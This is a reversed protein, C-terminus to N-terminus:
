CLLRPTNEKKKPRALLSPLLLHFLFGRWSWNVIATASVRSITGTACAYDLMRVQRKNEGRNKQEKGDGADDDEDDEDDEDEEAWDVGIFDLRSRLEATLRELM